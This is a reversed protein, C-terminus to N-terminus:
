GGIGNMGRKSQSREEASLEVHRAPKHYIATKLTEVLEDGHLGRVRIEEASHLCPKLYGDSTLRLRSCRDCFEHSLPSILGVRGRAGPLQYLSAVGDATEVPRLQPMRELVTTNPIYAKDGFERNDGIPMLEIFRMEVPNDVTLGCLAEIEDDNFGGILVANLKVPSMGCDIAAHIGELADDLNGLRTISRYKAPDLTDLSINIRNIGADRLQRAVPSLLTANTTMAMDKIEPIAGIDRCLDVIGRHVLPEGGTIRVKNVGLSAAARTIEVIEEHSLIQSPDLKKVGEAPMCYRCRLNCLDTVSIRLYNVERNYLDKM